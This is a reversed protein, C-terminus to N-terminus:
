CLSSRKWTGHEGVKQRTCTTLRVLNQASDSGVCADWITRIQGDIRCMVALYAPGRSDSSGREQLAVCSLIFAQNISATAEGHCGYMGVSEGTHQVV